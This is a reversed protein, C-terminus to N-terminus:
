IKSHVALWICKPKKSTYEVRHKTGSPIFFYDGEKLFIREGSKMLIESYGQLLLFWEDEKQFIWKGIVTSQGSSIIREIRFNEKKLIVEFIEKKFLKVKKIDFINQMPFKNKSQM